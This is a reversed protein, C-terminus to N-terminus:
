RNGGLRTLPDALPPLVGFLHATLYATAGVILYPHRRSTQRFTTSLTRHGTIVAHADIAAVVGFVVGWGIM